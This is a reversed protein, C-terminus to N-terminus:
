RMRRRMWALAAARWDSAAVDEVERLAIERAGSRWATHTLYMPRAVDNFFGNSWEGVLDSAGADTWEMFGRLDADFTEPRQVLPLTGHYNESAAVALSLNPEGVKELADVYAHFNNSVQYYCGVGVGIRAALYELLFSFHVANAGYGGWIMDNSRCLVTLDLMRVLRDETELLGSLAANPDVWTRWEERVRLYAHTNCPRDRLGPVGLDASPDWMALVVQRSTPDDRLLRVAEDLQDIVGAQDGTGDYVPFHSRWRAGYAGHQRGGEEPEGFRSSFDKVFRDLWTADDRGALMWLSEFLHFFPNADRRPDMLVRECPREYVTTCPHPLVVVPGARSEERVGEVRLLALGRAYADNVNRAQIIRM